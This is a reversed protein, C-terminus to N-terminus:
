VGRDAVEVGVPFLLSPFVDVVQSGMYILLLVLCIISVSKMLGSNYLCDTFLGHVSLSIQAKENCFSSAVCEVFKVQFQCFHKTKLWKKTCKYSHTYRVSLLM